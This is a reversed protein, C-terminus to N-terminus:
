MIFNFIYDPELGLEMRLIEEAELFDGNDVAYMMADRCDYYADKAETQTLGDRRMLIEIIEQM